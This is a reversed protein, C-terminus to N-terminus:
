SCKNTVKNLYPRLEEASWGKAGWSDFDSRQARTYMLFNISSGGGLTGGSAVVVERGALQDAKTSKYFLTAKSTPKLHSLYLAPYVVQPVNHNNQGGEIVLISM